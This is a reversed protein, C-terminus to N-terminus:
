HGCNKEEETQIQIEHDKDDDINTKKMKKDM